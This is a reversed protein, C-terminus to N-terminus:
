GHIEFVEHIAAHIFDIIMGSSVLSSVDDALDGARGHFWAAAAAANFLDAGKAAIAAIMGSLVDGSGATALAETGSTNLLLPGEAGAIVTPNGKLLLKLRHSRAFNRATEIPNAAIEDASLACLRSLEGYHPTLLVQRCKVLEHLLGTRSLAFLADADLILKKEALVGSSLMESILGTTKEDRGLGCGVLVTDAWDAKELIAKMERGIVVAEPVAAHFAGAHEAPISVCVYGAGTKVAAGASLIAAGLMSSGHTCSGAVILVKGNTHKASSPERLLFLEAAFEKDALLCNFPEAIFRPLSIEAIRTEGCLGPGDNLFFGTKLFAMAVTIDAKIAPKSSFGTTADLGSPIDIAITVAQSRENLTNLLDIGLSLPEPLKENEASLRLGTGTMADVLVDYVTDAVYPLAEDHSPFIRLNDQISEYARLIDLGERNVGRLAAEPYLLVLDVSAGLNLLHRAVVFGDGGNNGKGCVILMATGELEQRGTTELIVRVCERGALEMLRTEDIHLKEIAAKDANQMERATLVPLM